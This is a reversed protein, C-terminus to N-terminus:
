HRVQRFVRLFNEGLIKRVEAHAYGHQLLALTLAPFKSVDELGRAPPNMGDFDSGLAVYDVGVLRVIYDIHQIVTQIDAHNDYSLFSPYFVVGIM